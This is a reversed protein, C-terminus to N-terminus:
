GAEAAACPEDLAGTSRSRTAIEDFSTWWLDDGYRDELTSLVVDLYNVFHEDVGDIASGHTGHKVIHGKFALLGNREIIQVARDIPNNPAFNSTFHILGDTIRQPQILSVGKVGSMDTLADEAIPTWVDRASALFTMGVEAMARQLNSPAEWGPPCMGAVPTIGAARFIEMARSLTRVDQEVSEDQFEIVVRRGRHVHVLGHYGLETRPMSQLFRVFEPHRDLRMTGEPLVPTLFFRERVGPILALLRRTPIAAIERWDAAVFLTVRLQPHRDLLWLVHRLAGKELDGGAEYADCSKGPHVDDISFCLAARKGDPLWNALVQHREV